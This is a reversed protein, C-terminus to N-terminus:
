CYGFNRVITLQLVLRLLVFRPLLHAAVRRPSCAFLCASLCVSLRVFLWGSLCVSLCGSLCVLLPVSSAPPMLIKNM